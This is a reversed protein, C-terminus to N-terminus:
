QFTDILTQLIGADSANKSTQCEYFGLTQAKQLMRQGIVVLPIGILKQQYGDPIMSIMNELGEGSTVVVAQILQQDLNQLLLTPDSQPRGRRYTELYCVTAGRQRLTDALLERGGQGRVILITQGHIVDTQLSPLSLLGESTTDKEPYEIDEFGQEHLKAASTAGVTYIVQSKLRGGLVPLGFEVANRSIFIIRDFSPIESDVKVARIELVPFPLTQGGAKKILLSLEQAQHVPRTNLITIGTLPLLDPM